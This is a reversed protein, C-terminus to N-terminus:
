NKIQGQEQERVSWRQVNFLHVSRAAAAKRGRSSDQHIWSMTPFHKVLLLHNGLPCGPAWVASNFRSPPFFFFLQSLPLPLFAVLLKFSPFFHSHSLPYDFNYSLPTHRVQKAPVELALSAKSHSSSHWGWFSCLQYYLPKNFYNALWHLKALYLWKVETYNPM